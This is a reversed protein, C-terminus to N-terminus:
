NNSSEEESKPMFSVLVYLQDILWYGYGFGECADTGFGFEVAAYYMAALVYGLWNGAGVLSAYGYNIAKTFNEPVLGTAM